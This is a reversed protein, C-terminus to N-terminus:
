RKPNGDFGAPLRRAVLWILGHMLALTAFAWGYANLGAHVGAQGDAELRWALLTACLTTMTPGGIRQVINISTTAMALERKDIATYAASMTPLGVSGQGMGRLFLAPLLVHLDLGHGEGWRWALWVFALTSLTALATGSRVLRRTGLRRTLTSMALSSVMMGLGLPALMWGMETPARRCADVLFVPVLMQGAFLAGNSLFQTIASTRFVRSGFLKLDVLAADGKDRAHWLFLAILAAAAVVELRGIAGAIGQTGLLFLVLGPSLLALGSWDLGRPRLDQRDEPLIAFTLVLALLGVPVNVLFLWRWTAYQLIVGALMPGAIPAFLVPLSMYGVVRSMNRGAARAVLMQAMPAMLGGSIGQFARFAILSGASWALGCLASSITFSTLCILFLRKAGIRELLWGNLPLVLTLALLYASTVWQITSLSAHLESALGSLSVNVITADVQSLLPGFVAVFCIKYVSPDLKEPAESVASAM